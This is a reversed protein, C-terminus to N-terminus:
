PATEPDPAADGLSELLGQMRLIEASQDAVVHTLFESLLPDEGNGPTALLASVMDLAGQHHAIMGELFLRDFAAGTSAALADMQAPSLMGPMIPTHSADAAVAHAPGHHDHHAHHEASAHGGQGHDGRAANDGHGGHHVHLDHAEVAEGRETLWRTMLDIESAQTAAIRAGILRVGAHSTRAEILAGMEVAQGHHIIMHRMFDADNETHASRSLAVSEAASVIRRAEGPAGPNQIAPPQPTLLAFVLLSSAVYTM